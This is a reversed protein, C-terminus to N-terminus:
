AAIIEAFRTLTVPEKVNDRGDQWLDSTFFKPGHPQFLCSARRNERYIVAIAVNKVRLINFICIEWQIFNM